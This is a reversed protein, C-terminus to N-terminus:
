VYFQYHFFLRNRERTSLINISKCCKKFDHAPFRFIINFEFAKTFAQMIEPESHVIREKCM